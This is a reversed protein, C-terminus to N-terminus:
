DEFDKRGRPDDEAMQIGYSFKLGGRFSSNSPVVDRTLTRSSLFIFCSFVYM